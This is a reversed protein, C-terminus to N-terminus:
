WRGPDSRRSCGRGRIGRRGASRSGSISRSQRVFDPGACAPRDRRVRPWLPRRTYRARWRARPELRTIHLGPARQGVGLKNSSAYNSTLPMRPRAGVGHCGAEMSPDVWMFRLIKDAEAPSTQRATLASGPRAPSQFLPAPEILSRPWAATGTGAGMRMGSPGLPQYRRSSTPRPRSLLWPALSFPM